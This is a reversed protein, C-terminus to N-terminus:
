EGEEIRRAHAQYEPYTSLAQHVVALDRGQAKANLLIAGWKSNLIAPDALMRGPTSLFRAAKLKLAASTSPGRKQIINIGEAAGKGAGATILPNGTTALTSAAAGTGVMKSTLPMAQRRAAQAAGKNAAESAEIINGLQRKVPIFEDALARAVPDPHNARGARSPM